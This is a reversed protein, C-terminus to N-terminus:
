STSGNSAVTSRGDIQTGGIVSIIKMEQDMTYFDGMMADVGGGIRQTNPIKSYIQPTEFGNLFGVECNPRNQSNPDVTLGWSTFKKTADTCVIPIYPDMVLDMNQILWNNVNLFQAPQAAGAGGGENTLFVSLQNMLNNATVLLSPGFWLKLRGTIMIPQGSSDKMAALVKLADSLGQVGLVPNNSSAGNATIIKNGFGTTYLLASPGTSDVYLSTIFKSVGRNGEIALRMSLDQFIGLDDNVIAAWNVSTMSQGLLPAYTVAATSATALTAGGQPVPGYLASQQAMEAPDRYTLPSVVGDLMYRKVTRFDRLQKVKVLPKNVIPYDNYTGYYMRDLVDVTLAQYDSVSMTEVLGLVNRRTDGYLGPYKEMLYHVFVESTPSMAEKIFMPNEHGTIVDAYLRAAERVKRDHAASANRKASAFGQMSPSREVEARNYGDAQGFQMSNGGTGQYVAPNAKIHAELEVIQPLM